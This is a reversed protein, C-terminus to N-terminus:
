AEANYYNILCGSLIIDREERTLNPLSLTIAQETGNQILTANLTEADGELAARVGPIWLQDGPQINRGALEAAIFPLMGWNVVNSRYRKTAYEAAVNAVGGLVRQCSAAQERASGDGPKLAMVFSGM